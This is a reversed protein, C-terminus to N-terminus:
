PSWRLLVTTGAGPNSRIESSGGVDRLRQGISQSIGFGPITTDPGFGRGDDHVTVLTGSADVQLVVRASRTGAHKLVNTLAEATADCLAEVVAPPLAATMAAQVEVALGSTRANGAVLNLAASLDDPAAHVALRVALRDAEAGAAARVAELGAHRGTGIAEFTQVAGDHLIRLQALREQEAALASQATVAGFQAAVLRSAGGRIQDAFVRGMVFFGTIASLTAAADGYSPAQAACVAAVAGAGVAARPLSRMGMAQGTVVNTALSWPTWNVWTWRDAPELNWGSAVLAAVATAADLSAAAPDSWPGTRLVRRWLWWSETGTGILQAVALGPRRHRHWGGTVSAIGTLLGTARWTLFAALVVREARMLEERTAEDPPASSGVVTQERRCMMPRHVRRRAGTDFGVDRQQPSSELAQSRRRVERDDVGLTRVHGQAAGTLRARVPGEVDRDRVGRHDDLTPSSRIGRDPGLKPLEEEHREGGSPASLTIRVGRGPASWVAAEGRVPALVAELLGLRREYASGEGAEFGVGQDRVTIRLRGDSDIARVVARHSGSLEACTLLAVQVSERVADVVALNPAGHLEATVLEVRLGFARAAETADTLASDLDTPLEGRTRLAHRLRAAERRALRGASDLDTTEALQRLATIAVRHLRRQQRSREADASMARAAAVSAAEARERLAAFRRHATVYMRAAAYMGTWSLADNVALSLGAAHRDRGRARLGSAVAAMGVVSMAGVSEARGAAAGAGLASGIAVNKMWPAGTDGLGAECAVLGVASFTTDVWRPWAPRHSGARYVRAALWASETVAALLLGMELGPRRYRRRDAAVMFASFTLQGARAGGFAIAIAREVEASPTRAAGM